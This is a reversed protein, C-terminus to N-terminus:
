QEVNENLENPIEADPMQVNARSMGTAILHLEVKQSVCFESFKSSTFCRGQDAIIRDPVGFLSISSKMANVCSEADIKLTHYLYVFKTYADIQVIVYEKLDSKGSLKGTIDIHITHWPISTKPISHLEAQVKGSSSKVSRCTICNSVFKRVYKNMKAFWYYQYVKDLTKQWGLHMISEHVQNIVSWKFARPVVPLYSTRGRRQVKRYLVGKRLDYTKALNEALEDSELKNVIEIIELDLRQEALLWTSSIESLNVRKEPIKNISLIHEPSLPNRSLFDVHAMRKGERYQIEFNFSQLYAWWRHVRPTLDIKTRSAKLSNCDTYVVFERGILYHRFHKVAKVVALTELEYSHYRSEVSTTTKSFYEIVHPKSEIRHLLIAGYGCASADTHLEIPYQPDFIVLVPENTLITVVKLRIEELEASWTIKGSGSSLSYLPKMLQSFGPVFKRFYSALGIFQRVGSVTQPPPLSSLSAIKRVNPRIEGARVEYGLYQVTTKLFSCKALNFTFGAKTLVNLVTKLRELALEKTPSVVMIDDMYVIVFSNALDGLANIVARQFVSPANKLGFPMTLFEFQGDPTVFATYEVSEPHIPIQHFGSAMDLCTFYNAGRLRAIQDSILPLPYKDSITNSNLERFDVCLRDTGNKKKVLLMPSAFPSCSPRVINCRILESVQMRVVEREEPSLRYPRRQVTKTPDILRIKMEGTNVRTHPIGNTFSTSHKELLEILQAKENDVLETDIDSLTFSRETVSCNNVTKSKVVKFNDSTLIVYFGQKLIERGILIDNRMQENPVVHFLIEMINENITVESLIQLTSCVSGGGIGKIMVTNNIRKGSLKSSIDDKILSCEAGSDFCIPYIEGRQHLSGKPETVCCQNVTKQQTVDQKAASGNKPCQNSFHGPQGCRYCTVNSKERQPKAQRDQRMKSRCEAIRHGPKSCFHCVVPSAKRNKQDPGLNDDRAHRKKDFTFAKLEAQLKSRTRVNSTFLVRQLRSDINAMHALVTTVAIEEIEMNRWKTTLTTVLRSAYVAYCEAATPRSNLLNLFTAAPTEETEFRQLFLEQFEQWTMGQYSIQTLWQSATGEMCNSLAMILKSGKLPHETLIIDTTSCWKAAEVCAADPNFKPLKVDYSPQQERAPTVQMIKVLEALNRNQMEVVARWQDESFAPHPVSGVESTPNLIDPDEGDTRGDM